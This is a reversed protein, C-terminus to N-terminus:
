VDRGDIVADVFSCFGESNADVAHATRIRGTKQYRCRPLSWRRRM